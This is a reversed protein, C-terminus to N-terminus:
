IDLVGTSDYSAELITSIKIDWVCDRPVLRFYSIYIYIYIYIYQGLFPLITEAM